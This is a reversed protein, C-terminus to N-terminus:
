YANLDRFAVLNNKIHHSIFGIKPYISYDTVLNVYQVDYYYRKGSEAEFIILELTKKIKRLPM